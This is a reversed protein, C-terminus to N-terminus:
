VCLYPNMWGITIEENLTLLSEDKLSFTGVTAVPEKTIIKEGAKIENKIITLSDADMSNHNLFNAENRVLNQNSQMLAKPLDGRDDIHEAAIALSSATQYGMQYFNSQAASHTHAPEGSDQHTTYITMDEQLPEFPLLLFPLGLLQTRKHWGRAIFENLFITTEKGCFVAFVFDPQNQEMHAFLINMDSLERNNILPPVCFSWESAPDAAKMGNYFMQSFSYGADYVSAVFMGKKGLTKVGWHGLSWAHRWLGISNHFVFENLKKPDPIYEGLNNMLLVKQKSEFKAAVGESVRNSLIGTILDVDDYQFMKVVADETQKLGGQGTFEKTLEISFKTSAHNSFGDKLGKEFDKSLPLISSSPLLLGIHLNNMQVSKKIAKGNIALVVLPKSDQEPIVSYPVSGRYDLVASYATILYGTTILTSLYPAIRVHNLTRARLFFPIEVCIFNFFYSYVEVM